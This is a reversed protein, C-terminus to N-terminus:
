DGAHDAEAEADPDYSWEFDASEGEDPLPYISLDDTHPDFREEAAIRKALRVAQEISKCRHIGGPQANWTETLIYSM